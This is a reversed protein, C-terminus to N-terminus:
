DAMNLQFWAALPSPFSYQLLLSQSEFCAQAEQMRAFQSIPYKGVQLYEVHRRNPGSSMQRDIESTHVPTRPADGNDSTDTSSSAIADRATNSSHGDESDHTQLSCRSDTNTCTGRATVHEWKM